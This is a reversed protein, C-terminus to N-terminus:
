IVLAQKLTTTTRPMSKMCRLGKRRTVLRPTGSAKIVQTALLAWCLKPGTLSTNAYNFTRLNGTFVRDLQIFAVDCTRNDSAKIWEETTVVSIGYRAQVQATKVSACGNYGIYCRIQSAAGYRHVWDYVVHGATVLLDHRILWGPGMM